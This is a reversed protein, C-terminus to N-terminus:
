DAGAVPEADTWAREFADALRTVFSEERVLVGGLREDRVFPDPVDLSAARDDVVAITAYLEPTTRIALDEALLARRVGAPVTEFLGPALLLKVTVARDAVALVDEVEGAYAEWAAAEYPGCASLLVREEATALAERLYTRADDSGLGATWFSSELPPAGGLAEAVEDAM